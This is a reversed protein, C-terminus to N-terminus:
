QQVSMYTEYYKQYEEETMENKDEETVDDISKELGKVTVTVVVNASSSREGVSAVPIMPSYYPAEKISIAEYQRIYEDAFYDVSPDKARVSEASAAASDSASRSIASAASQNTVISRTYWDPLAHATPKPAAKENPDVFEVIVDDGDQKRSGRDDSGAVRIMSYGVDALSTEDVIGARTQIYDEPDFPSIEMEELRKLLRTIPNTLEVLRSLARTDGAM